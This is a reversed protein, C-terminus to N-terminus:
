EAWWNSFRFSDNEKPIVNVAFTKTLPVNNNSITYKIEVRFMIPKVDPLASKFTDRLAKNINKNLESGLLLSANQNVFASMDEIKNTIKFPTNDHVVDYEITISTIKIADSTGNYLKLSKGDESSLKISMGDITTEGNCAMHGVRAEKLEDAYNPHAKLFDKFKNTYVDITEPKNTLLIEVHEITRKTHPYDCFFHCGEVVAKFNKVFIASSDKICVAENGFETSYSKTRPWPYGIPHYYGEENGYLTGGQSECYKKYLNNTQVYDYNSIDRPYEFDKRRIVTLDNSYGIKNQFEPLTMSKLLESSQANLKECNSSYETLSKYESGLATLGIGCILGFLLM